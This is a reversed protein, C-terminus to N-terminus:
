RLDAILFQIIAQICCKLRVAYMKLDMNRSIEQNVEPVHKPTM